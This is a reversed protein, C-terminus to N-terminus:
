TTICVMASPHYLLCLKYHPLHHFILLLIYVYMCEYIDCWICNKMLFYKFLTKKTKKSFLLICNYSQLLLIRSVDIKLYNKSDNIVKVYVCVYLSKMVHNGVTKFITWCESQTVILLHWLLFYFCWTFFSPCTPIINFLVGGM